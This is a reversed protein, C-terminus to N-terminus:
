RNSGAQWTLASLPALSSLCPARPAVAPLPQRAATHLQHWLSGHLSLLWADLSRTKWQTNPVPALVPTMLPAVTADGMSSATSSPIALM